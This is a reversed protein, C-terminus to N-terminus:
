NSNANLIAWAHRAFHGRMDRTFKELIERGLGEHDGCRYLARALTIERLAIGRDLSNTNESIMRPKMLVEAIAKAGRPDGISELARAVARHHSFAHKAELTKMKELIPPLARRDRSLGLAYIFSDLRSMSNGFQGMGKFNWGTDWKDFSRVKEILTQIGTADGLIGLLQAYILREGSEKESDRWAEKLLPVSQKPQALLVAAGKYNNKVQLVAEQVKEEPMPFTDVAYIVDEPLAGIGTLHKQLKRINIERLPVNGKVAYSAAVGAAYGENQLDAQMRIVPVVDRHASTGLGTVLIGKLGRPLLCRYPTYTYITRKKSPTKLTFLPDITFGHTDFNTRSYVISDPYERENMFDLVTLTYDGVIRRRERTDIFKGSDFSHHKKRVSVFLNWVDIMDTEDSFTFDTNAYSAGLERPPLGTGQMALDTGDIYITQAGAAAAIDSNGTSDIVARALVAGRGQPTSVIVGRVQNDKDVIAGCGLSGFWVDAGAKRLATRWWEMKEEIGWRSKGGLVELTFGKRYGYYYGAIAGMTGVGGLGYQYEVVLTKMGQRAAGIGAPAGSTGGGIVVVDYDGIVPIPRNSQTLTPLNQIPRIGALSERIELGSDIHGEPGFVVPKSPMERSAAEQAAAKGIREGAKMLALPRALKAAHDRPIDACAGLVFLGSLGEPKFAELPMEGEGQWSVEGQIPDPPVEILEESTFQQGPHWTMDRAKQNAEAWAGPSTNKLPIRLSYEIVSYQKGSKHYAPEIIRGNIRPTDELAEGGIVVRKFDRMGAPYTIGKAGALRALRARATADIVTKAIVAQRGGRNTIVIGAIRGNEDVLLDTTYCWFLFKVGAKILADDLTRKVHLPTPMPRAQKEEAEIEKKEGEVAIEGLLHRAVRETQEVEFKLYRAEAKFETAIDICDNEFGGDKLKPNETTGGAQWDKGDRSWSVKVRAVEFDETRQYALVHTKKIKKVAGFDATIVVNGGYQVSEKPANHWRWDNLFRLRPDPHVGSAKISTTYKFPITNKILPVSGPVSFIRMALESEPEEGEELWLQLTATMDDGLYSRPTALFVKAGEAAASIASQVAGTSGGVIAIDVEYAIPLQRASEFIFTKEASLPGLALLFLLAGHM